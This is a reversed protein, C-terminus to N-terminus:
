FMDLKQPIGYFACQPNPCAILLGASVLVGVAGCSSCAKDSKVPDGRLVPPKDSDEIALRDAKHKAAAALVAMTAADDIRGSLELKAGWEDAKEAADRYSKEAATM